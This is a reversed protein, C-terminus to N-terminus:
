QCVGPVHCTKPAVCQTGCTGCNNNDTWSNTECGNAPNGDCDKYPNVCSFMCQGGQCSNSAHAANCIVGCAGCNALTTCLTTCGTNPNM